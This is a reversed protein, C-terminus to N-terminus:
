MRLSINVDTSESLYQKICEYKLMAETNGFWTEVALSSPPMLTPYIIIMCDILHDFIQQDSQAPQNARNNNICVLVLM